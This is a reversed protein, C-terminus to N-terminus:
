VHEIIKLLEVAAEVCEPTYNKTNRTIPACIARMSNIRKGQGKKQAAVIKLKVTEPASDHFKMQALKLDEATFTPAFLNIDVSGMSEEQMYKKLSMLSPDDKINRLLTRCHNGKELLNEVRVELVALLKLMSIDGPAGDTRIIKCLDDATEVLAVASRADDVERKLGVMGAVGECDKFLGELLAAVNMAM